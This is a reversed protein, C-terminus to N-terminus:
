TPDKAESELRKRAKFKPSQDSQNDEEAESDDDDINHTCFTPTTPRSGPNSGIDVVSEPREPGEPADVIRGDPALRTNRYRARGDIWAEETDARMAMSSIGEEIDDTPTSEKEANMALEHPLLQAEARFLFSFPYHLLNMFSSGYLDAFRLVQGAFMTNRSGTRFLSGFKGYAMDMDHVVHRIMAQLPSIDPKTASRSDLKSFMEGIADDLAALKQINDKKEGWVHIEDALEPVVLFTRWGLAKKSRLVDGFIHDGVYMIEKGHCKLLDTVDQHCGGSYVDGVDLKGMHKGLRTNGSKPDIQRLLTGEEFFLPKRSDVISVEFFDQWPKNKASPIDFLYKMVGDTYWYESNTALFLKKGSDRMRQLLTPLNDDRAIYKSPSKVTEKKLDGRMHVWDVCGRVDKQLQRFTLIVSEDLQVGKKMVVAGELNEFLDVVCAMVYIEPLNFLTNYIYFQSSDKQIFKNPYFKRIDQPRLMRLGHSAVLINGHGDIKLLNGLENDFVLGRTVFSPDYQYSTIEAPYGMQVLRNVMLSFGLEEFAPSKYVAITYDMDFGIAKLGNMSVSRNVFVRKNPNRRWGRKSTPLM